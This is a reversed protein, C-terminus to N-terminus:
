KEVWHGLQKHIQIASKLDANEKDLKNNEEWLDEILAKAEKEAERSRLAEQFLMWFNDEGVDYDFRKNFEKNTMRPESM